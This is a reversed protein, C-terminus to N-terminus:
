LNQLVEWDSRKIVALKSDMDAPVNPDFALQDHECFFPSNNIGPPRPYETPRGLWMKWSRVFQSPVIALPTDELLATDGNLAHDLM